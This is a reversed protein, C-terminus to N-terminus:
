EGPFYCGALEVQKRFADAKADKEAQDQAAEAAIQEATLPKANLVELTPGSLKNFAGSSADVQDKLGGKDPNFNHLEDIYAQNWEGEVLVVNLAECQSCFPKARTYKDGSVRDIHVAFGALNLVTNQASEKGGSGPEQETYVDVMMGDMQATAKIMRERGLHSLQERAVHGVFWRKASDSWGMKVGVTYCGGAETGAKDWYRVWRTDNPAAGVITFWSRNFVKGAEPRANWNGGHLREREVLPLALLNALYGPDAEMLKRNDELRAAIFSLSKPPINPYAFLSDAASDFWHLEDQVRVFWRIVGDREPIPLGSDTDIWWQILRHVWGGTPDDAPVPNVTARVYPAVGCLSRNRSLLYWFQHETFEELQDFGLLPIQAGKWSEVDKEHQCHAFKIRAGKPFVWRLDSENEKAGLLPYLKKSEDWMGGENTINPYIRRFIVCGFDKNDHHRVPELLLEWTKGGGASGGYILIDAPCALAREQPGPQPRIEIRETVATVLSASAAKREAIRQLRVERGRAATAANGM